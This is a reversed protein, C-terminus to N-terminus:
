PKATASPAEKAPQHQTDQGAIELLDLLEDNWRRIELCGLRLVWVHILAMDTKTADLRRFFFGFRPTRIIQLRRFM